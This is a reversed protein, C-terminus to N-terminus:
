QAVYEAAFKRLQRAEARFMTVTHANEVNIRPAAEEMVRASRELKEAESLLALKARNRSMQLVTKMNLTM